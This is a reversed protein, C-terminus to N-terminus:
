DGFFIYGLGLSGTLGGVGAGHYGVEARWVWRDSMLGHVGIAGHVGAMIDRSHGGSMRPESAAALDLGVKVYPAVGGEEVGPAALISLGLDYLRRGDDGRLFLTSAEFGSIVDDDVFLVLLNAGGGSAFEDLGGDSGPTRLTTASIGGAGVVDDAQALQPCVVVMAACLAQKWWRM